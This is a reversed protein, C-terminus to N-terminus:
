EGVEIQGQPPACLAEAMSKYGPIEKIGELLTNLNAGFLAFYPEILYFYLVFPLGLLFAYWGFRIWFGWWTQRRMKELMENNERLLQQNEELLREIGMHSSKSGHDSSNENHENTDVSM